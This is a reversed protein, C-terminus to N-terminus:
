AEGEGNGHLAPSDLCDFSKCRRVARQMRHLLSEDVVISKLAAVTGRALNHGGDRADVLSVGCGVCVDPFIHAAVQATARGIGLNDGCDPLSALLHLVGSAAM